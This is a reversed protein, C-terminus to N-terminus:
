WGSSSSTEVEGEDRKEGTEAFATPAPAHMVAKLAALTFCGPNEPNEIGGATRKAM